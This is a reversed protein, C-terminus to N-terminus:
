KETGESSPLTRIAVEDLLQELAAVFSVRKEPDVSINLEISNGRQKYYGNAYRVQKLPVSAKALSPAIYSQVQNILWRTPQDEAAYKEALALTKRLGGHEYLRSLNYAVLSGFKKPERRITDLVELPLKAYSRFYTLQAKSLKARRAIEAATLGASLQKEFFMARDFDCHQERGENQNYGFWSAEGLTLDAHVEALLTSCVNHQICAQVRTWGDAIIYRGPQESSPIVHIPDHQGQTRLDEARQLIMEPTYIERPALPNPDILSLDIQKLTRVVSDTSHSFTHSELSISSTTDPAAAINERKTNSFSPLPISPRPHSAGKETELRQSTDLVPRIIRQKTM